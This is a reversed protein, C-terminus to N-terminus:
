NSVSSATEYRSRFVFRRSLLFNGAMGALSGAAVGLVPSEQVLPVTAILVGYTGYNCVFGVLNVAVFISWDHVM